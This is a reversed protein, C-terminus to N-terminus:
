DRERESQCAICLVAEPQVTLRQVGIPEECRLCEGYEGAEIRQLAGEVRKLRLVAADHNAKTMSQQQLADMRSLRGIYEDLDVPRSGASAAELYVTLEQRLAELEGALRQTDESGLESM